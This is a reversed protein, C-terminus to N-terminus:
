MCHYPMKYEIYSIEFARKNYEVQRDTEVYRPPVPMWIKSGIYYIDKRPMVYRILIM